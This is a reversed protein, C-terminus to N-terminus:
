PAPFKKAAAADIEANTAAADAAITATHAMVLEYIKKAAAEAEAATALGARNDKIVQILEMVLQLVAPEAQILFPILEALLPM